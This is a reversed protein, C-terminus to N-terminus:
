ARYVQGLVWITRVRWYISLRVDEAKNIRERLADGVTRVYM